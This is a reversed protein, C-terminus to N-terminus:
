EQGVVLPTPDLGGAGEGPWREFLRTWPHVLPGLTVSALPQQYSPQPGFWGTAVIKNPRSHYFNQILQVMNLFQSIECVYVGVYTCASLFVPCM